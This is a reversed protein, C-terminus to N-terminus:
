GCGAAGIIDHGIATTLFKKLNKVSKQKRCDKAGIRRKKANSVGSQQRLEAFFPMVAGFKHPDTGAAGYLAFTFYLISVQAL